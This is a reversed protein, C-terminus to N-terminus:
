GLLSAGDTSCIILHNINFPKCRQMQTMLCNCKYLSMSTSVHLRVHISVGDKARLVFARRFYRASLLVNVISRLCCLGMLHMGVFACPM